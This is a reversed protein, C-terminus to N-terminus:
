DLHLATAPRTRAARASPILAAFGTMVILGVSAGALTLPDAEAVGYLQSGAYRGLWITLTLGITVGTAAILLAECVVQWAVTTATAGLAMRIGIERTRRGVTFATVGYVGIAALITALAGSVLSMTAVFRENRLSDAVKTDFARLGYVPLDPDLQQLTRQIAQFAAAPGRESRVYVVFGRPSSQELFPVFVQRPAEGRLDTYKADKVVGVIEIGVPIAPNFGFAVHRGLPNTSGFYQRAFRENVIAVRYQRGPAAPGSREDRQDFDRGTTLPMGMTAFYGPSVANNHQAMNEDQQAVYGEVRMGSTWQNGELLPMSALGVSAIGPTARLRELLTRALQKNREPTYGNLSPDISATVLSDSNFGLDVALLNQLTQGFLAAASILVL